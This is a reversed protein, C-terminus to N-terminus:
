PQTQWVAIAGVSMCASLVIPMWSWDGTVSGVMAALSSGVGASVGIIWGTPRTRSRHGETM